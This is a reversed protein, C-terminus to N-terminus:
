KYLKPLTKYGRSKVFFIKQPLTPLIGVPLPFLLVCERLTHRQRAKLAAQPRCSIPLFRCVALRVYVIPLRLFVPPSCQPSASRACAWRRCYAAHALMALSAFGCFCFSSFSYRYTNMKQRYPRRLSPRLDLTPTVAVLVSCWRLSPAAPLNGCFIFKGFNHKKEKEKRIEACNRFIESNKAFNAFACVRETVPLVALVAAGHRSAHRQATQQLTRGLAGHAGAACRAAPTRLCSSMVRRRRLRAPRRM